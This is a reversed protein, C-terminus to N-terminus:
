PTMGGHEVAQPSDVKSPETTNARTRAAEMKRAVYERLEAVSYRKGTRGREGIYLAHLEGRAAMNAITKPCVALLRAAEPETVLLGNAVSATIPIRKM